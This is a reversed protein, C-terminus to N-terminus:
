QKLIEFLEALCNEPAFATELKRRAEAGYRNRLERDDLLKQILVLKNDEETVLVCSAESIPIGEFGKATGVVCKGNMMAEVNKVKIGSGKVLTGIALKSQVYVANVNEVFGLLTIQDPWKELLSRCYAGKSLAGAVAIRPFHPLRIAIRDIFYRLGSENQLSNGAIMIFDYFADDAEVEKTVIPTLPLGIKVVKEMPFGYGKLIDSEYDALVAVHAFKRLCHLESKRLLYEQIARLARNKLRSFSMLRFFQLDHTIVTTKRRAAGPIMLRWHIYNLLIHDLQPFWKRLRYRFYLAYVLGQIVPIGSKGFIYNLGHLVKSATPVPLVILEKCITQYLELDINKNSVLVLSVQLEPDQSLYTLIERTLRKNGEDTPFLEGYFFIGIKRM